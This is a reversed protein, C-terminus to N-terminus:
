QGTRQRKHRPRLRTDDALRRIVGRQAIARRRAVSRVKEASDELQAERRKSALEQVIAQARAQLEAIGRGLEFKRRATQVEELREDRTELPQKELRASGLLVKGDGVYVDVLNIGKSTLALERVQNSHGTGRSKVITLARNREGERAVYSVHIWTDAITSIQSASLETSGPNQGLLSSCLFTIGKAKAHDLLNECIMSSFPYDAKLLSSIPDIVLCIPAHQDLLRRITVFHEEPSRGSSLLSEFVLLGRAIFPALDIGISKM